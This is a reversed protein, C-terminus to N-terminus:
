AGRLWVQSALNDQCRNLTPHTGNAYSSLDMCGNVSGINEWDENGGFDWLQNVANADCAALVPKTGNTYSPLSLCVNPAGHARLTHVDEDWIWWQSDLNRNCGNLGPATGPAYSILDLCSGEHGLSELFFVEIAAPKQAAGSPASFVLLAAAAVVAITLLKKPTM